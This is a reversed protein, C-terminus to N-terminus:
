NAAWFVLLTELERERFLIGAALMVIDSIYIYIFSSTPEEHM